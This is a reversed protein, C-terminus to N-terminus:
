NENENQVHFSSQSRSFEQIETSIKAGLTRLHSRSLAM